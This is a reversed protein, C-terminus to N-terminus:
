KIKSNSKITKKIFLNANVFSNKGVKIQQKIVSGSGIFSNREITTGGNVIAGTSIHCNDEIVADHEIIAGTNIICNKGIKANANVLARHMIISGAGVFSNKSVYALPSIISPLNFKLNILQKFIKERVSPDIIQGVTIIANKVIKSIKKLDKDSAIRKYKLSIKKKSDVIGYIKFKKEKEIVDICSVCHGGGGILVINKM